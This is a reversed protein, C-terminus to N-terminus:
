TSGDPPQAHRLAHVATLLWALMFSLGGLPAVMGLTRPAGATMLYISGPFLLVGALMFRAARRLTPSVGTLGALLGIGILGLSHLLQYLVGTQFSALQRPALRAELVHAGFAGLIVGLLMLAAGTAVCNRVFKVAEGPM